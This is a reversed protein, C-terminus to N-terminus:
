ARLNEARPPWASPASLSVVVGAGIGACAEHHPAGTSSASGTKAAVAGLRDHRVKFSLELNVSWQPRPHM